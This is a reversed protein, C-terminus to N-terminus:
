EKRQELFEAVADGDAWWDDDLYGNQSLWRCFETLLETLEHENM